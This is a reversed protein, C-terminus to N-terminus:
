KKRWAGNATRIYNGRLTKEIATNGGVREVEALSTGQKKAINQYGARRKANVDNVLKKINAPANQQVLGIYGNAQEGILGDAKPQTLPSAAVAVSMAMMGILLALFVNTTWNNRKMMMTGNMENKWNSGTRNDTIRDAFLM